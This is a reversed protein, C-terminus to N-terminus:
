YVDRVDREVINFRIFEPISQKVAIDRLDLKQNIKAALIIDAHYSIEPLKYERLTDYKSIINMNNIRCLYDLMALTYLSEFYWEFHWYRNIIDTSIISDVYKKDGMEKLDHRAQSKFTELSVREPVHTQDYLEEMTIGLTKSLYYAYRFSAREMKTKGHLLDSLTSYPIGSRRSCEYITLGKDELLFTFDM